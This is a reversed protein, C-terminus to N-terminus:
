FLLIISAIFRVKSLYFLLTLTVHCIDEKKIRLRELFRIREKLEAEGLM